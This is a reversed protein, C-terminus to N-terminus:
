CTPLYRPVGDRSKTIDIIMEKNGYHGHLVSASVGSKSARRKNADEGDDDNDITHSVEKM